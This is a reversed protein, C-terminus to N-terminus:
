WQIFQHDYELKDYDGKWKKLMDEIKTGSICAIIKLLPIKKLM